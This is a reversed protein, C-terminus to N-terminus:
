AEDGVFSFSSIVDSEAESGVLVCTRLLRKEPAVDPKVVVSLESPRLAKASAELSALDSRALNSICFM